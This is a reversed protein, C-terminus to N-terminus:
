SFANDPYCLHRAVSHQMIPFFPIRNTRADRKATPTDAPASMANAIARDGAILADPSPFSNFGRTDSVARPPNPDKVGAIASGRKDANSARLLRTELPNRKVGADVLTRRLRETVTATRAVIPPLL